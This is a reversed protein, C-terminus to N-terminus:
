RKPVGPHEKKGLELLKTSEERAWEAHEDRFARWSTSGAELLLKAARELGSSVGVQFARNLHEEDDDVTAQVMGNEYTLVYQPRRLGLAKNFANTAAKLRDTGWPKGTLCDPDTARVVVVHGRRAEERSM